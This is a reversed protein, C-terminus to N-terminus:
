PAFELDFGMQAFLPILQAKREDDTLHENDNTTAIASALKTTNKFYVGNYGESEIVLGPFFLEGCPLHFPMTLGRIESSDYGVACALQGLCCQQGNYKDPIGVQSVVELASGSSGHGRYWKSEIITFKQGM